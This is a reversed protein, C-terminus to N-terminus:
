KRLSSISKNEPEFLLAKRKFLSDMRQRRSEILFSTIM